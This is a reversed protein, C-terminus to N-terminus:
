SITQFLNTIYYTYYIIQYNNYAGRCNAFQAKPKTPFDPLKFRKLCVAKSKNCIILVIKSEVSKKISKKWLCRM